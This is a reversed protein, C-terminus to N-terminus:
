GPFRLWAVGLPPLEVVAAGQADAAASAGGCLEEGVAGAPLGGLPVTVPDASTSHLCVVRASGDARTREVAVVAAPAALLRQPASPAFAPEARRARIRAGLGALVASRLSAPDDLDAELEARDLKQRNISRRLGTRQPGEQWNRSGLLAHIYLAPVGALALVISHAAVHRAVARDRPEEPPNLADFYVSNLEYPAIGGDGLARFSVAGGHVRVRDVLRAIETPSLLGQAPRLGIGDHSALVNLFATGPHLAPLGAAWRTLPTADQTAFASLVLPALPFQYVLHAQDSGSGLYTLNEEHPVNTETLLLTGPAALDVVTRWLRVIEYTSPHHICPTGAEKWLFAVADLRLMTAGHAVYSLLVETVALLVQPNAFDLDHQDESFTTWVHEIGHVTPVPTLLPLARPRVVQTLDAAPDETRIFGAHRPDGERWGRAWPHAASVHNVVADLMLGLDPRYAEVDAWDGYGPDVRSFDAVAFGDDSTWPHLPLLHVASVLDALRSTILERLSRLPAVGPDRVHDPYAILVVDAEDPAAGTGSPHAARHATVLEAFREALADAPEPGYLRELHRRLRDLESPELRAM